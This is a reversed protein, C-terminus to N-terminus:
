SWLADNPVRCTRYVLDPEARTVHADSALRSLVDHVPYENRFNMVYTHYLDPAVKLRGLTEDPVLRQAHTFEFEHFIENLSDFNTLLAPETDDLSSRFQIDESFSVIMRGPVFECAVWRDLTDARVATALLLFTFLFLLFRRSM